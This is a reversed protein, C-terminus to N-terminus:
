SDGAAPTVSCGASAGVFTVGAPLTDTLGRGPRRVPRQQRDLPQLDPGPRRGRVVLDDASGDGDDKTISVDAPRHGRHGRHRQQRDCRGRRDDTSISASNTLTTGDLVDADVSVGVSFSTTAGAALTGLTCTVLAGAATVAAPRPASSPSAPRSPTPSVVGQADSPGSNAISLSYTRDQGAVM